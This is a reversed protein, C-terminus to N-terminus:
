KREMNEGIEDYTDDLTVIFVCVCVCMHTLRRLNTM